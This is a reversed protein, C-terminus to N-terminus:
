NTKENGREKLFTLNNFNLMEIIYNLNHIRIINKNYDEISNKSKYKKDNM